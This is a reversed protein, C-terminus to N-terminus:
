APRGERAKARRARRDLNYGYKAAPVTTIAKAPCVQECVGCGVCPAEVVPQIGYEMVLAEGRLPCKEHCTKCFITGIWTYCMAKDIVALGMDTERMDAVPELAGTPCVPPCRMCLWCPIRGARVQPTGSLFPGAGATMVISGFPCVQACRGCQVCRRLFEAEPRAGPPRLVAAGFVTM